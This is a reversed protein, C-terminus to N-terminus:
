CREAHSGEEYHLREERESLFFIEAIGRSTRGCPDYCKSCVGNKTKGAIGRSTRGCPDYCKSCVGNKTKGTIRRSIRG